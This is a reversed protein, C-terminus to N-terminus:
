LFLPAVYPIVEIIVKVVEMVGWGKKQSEKFAQTLEQIQQRYKEADKNLSEILGMILRTNESNLNDSLSKEKTISDIMAEVQPSLDPRNKENKILYYNFNKKLTEELDHEYSEAPKDSSHLKPIDEYIKVAKENNQRHLTLLEGYSKYDSKTRVNQEMLDTYVEKADSIAALNQADATASLITKPSPLKSGTLIKMYSRLYHVFDSAHIEVGNVKKTLLRQKGVVNPIFEQLLRLFDEDIQRYNGNFNPNTAVASGPYPMLFCDIENFCASINLRLERTEDDDNDKIALSRQLIQRGGIFGYPAEYPYFWDRVLFILKQFPKNLPNELALKGYEAFLQSM